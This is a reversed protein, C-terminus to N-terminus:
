DCLEEWVQNKFETGQDSHLQAPCSFNLFWRDLLKSAVVETSKEPILVGM